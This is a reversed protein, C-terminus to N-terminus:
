RRAMAIQEFIKEIVPHKQFDESSIKRLVVDTNARVTATRRKEKNFYAMEGFITGAPLIAVEKGEENLTVVEGSDIFYVGDDRDNINIIKEGKKRWELKFYQEWSTDVVLAHYLEYNMAKLLEESLHLLRAGLSEGSKQSIRMGSSLFDNEPSPTERIYELVRETSRDACGAMKLFLEQAAALMQQAKPFNPPLGKSTDGCFHQMAKKRLAIFRLFLQRDVDSPVNNLGPGYVTFLQLPTAFGDVMVKGVCILEERGQYRLAINQDMLLPTGFYDCLQELRAAIAFSAGFQLPKGGLQAAIIEGLHLGIRTPPLRGEAVTRALRIATAVARTCLGARMEGAYKEFIILSGDGAVPEVEISNKDQSNVVEQVKNHYDLIFDRIAIPRMHATIHSYGVMDSMLIVVEREVTSDGPFTDVVVPDAVLGEVVLGKLTKGM